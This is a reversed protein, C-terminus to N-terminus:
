KVLSLDADEKEICGFIAPLVTMTMTTSTPALSLTPTSHLEYEVGFKLKNEEKRRGGVV